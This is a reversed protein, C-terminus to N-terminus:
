NKIHRMQKRTTIIEHPLNVLFVAKCKLLERERMIKIWSRPNRIFGDILRFIWQLGMNQVIQPPTMIDGILYRFAAGAGIMVGRDLSSINQNMWKEQKRGGFSVWIIDPDAKRIKEIMLQNDKADFVKFPPSHGSIEIKSNLRRAEAVVKNITQETDGLLYHRCGDMDVLLRKMLSAGSIREVERCGVMRAYWALPMGDALSLLSANIATQLQEDKAAAILNSVDNLCIYGRQNDNIANIVVNYVNQYSINSIKIGKYKVYAVNEYRMTTEKM